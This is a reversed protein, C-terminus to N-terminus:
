RGPIDVGAGFGGGASARGSIGAQAGASARINARTSGGIGGSAGISAGGGIGRRANFGTGANIGASASAGASIGGGIGASASIGASAGIGAGADAGFGVGGGLGASFGIGGSIRASASIAGQAGLSVGAGASAGANLNLLTGPKLRLPNDINNAAAIAKWNSSNGGNRGLMKPMSDGSGNGNGRVVDLPAKGPQGTFGVGPKGTGQETPFVIDQRTIGLALTARLPVGEESFYDLTEQLSDVIGPFNFTGWEFRIGPPIKKDSQQSQAQARIFYGVKATWYRVDTGQQTTDFFLEVSLKTTSKGVFQKASGGAQDGGKNENAYTLKLTQPNFQVEIDNSGNLNTPEPKGDEWKIEFLKAKNLMM